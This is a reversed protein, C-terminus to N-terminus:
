GPSLPLLPVVGRQPGMRDALADVCDSDFSVGKQEQLAALAEEEPLKSRLRSSRMADFVEAVALIRSRMPVADGDRGYYGEGDPREHHWLITRAVREDDDLARLLAAGRKPHTRILRRQSEDLPQKRHLMEVPLAIKGIDHLMAARLLPETEDSSLGLGEAITACLGTVREAHGPEFADRRDAWEAVRSAVELFPEVPKEYQPIRSGLLSALRRGLGGRRRLRDESSEPNAGPEEGRIVRRVRVLAEVRALLDESMFPSTLRDVLRDDLNLDQFLDTDHQVFLIPAAFGRVGPGRNALVRATCDATTVILEPLIERELDRWHEVARSLDVHHGDQRLLSRLESVRAGKDGVLLIDAM